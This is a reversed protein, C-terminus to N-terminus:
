MFEILYTILINNLLDPTLIGQCAALALMKM